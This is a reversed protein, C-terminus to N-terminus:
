YSSGSNLVLDKRVFSTDGVTMTAAELLADYWQNLTESKLTSNVMYSRYTTDSEGVFYMIHAGYSTVVVDTDGPQRSEDFCWDNFESVMQGPYVNEYLGGNASSGPDTSNDAVLAKFSDETAEGSKWQNLLDNAKDLVEAKEEDTVNATDAYGILIHRVNVLPFQNDNAGLFLVLYYTTIVGDADKSEIVTFDGTERASDTLWESYTSSVRSYLTDTYATSSVNEKEANYSLGAIAADLSEVTHIDAGLIEYAAAAAAARGAEKEEDSYTTTGSEDTTGGEYFSSVSMSYVNYTYSNFEAPAQEDRATLAADDFNLSDSYADYFNSALTRVEVYRRYDKVRASGGYMAQLYAGASSYGYMKAYTEMSALSSDISAKDEESLTQGAKVAEDYLTYIEKATNQAQTLLDDAWTAGTEENTVQQNLPLSANLGFIMPGYDGYQNMQQVFANVTDIYFFNMETASIKHDNVKLATTNRQVLGSNSITSYLFFGLCLVLVVAFAITYIKLKTAEKRERVQQETMAAANQEKRLKKKSSASM